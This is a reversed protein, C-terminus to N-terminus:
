GTAPHSTAQPPDTLVLMLQLPEVFYHINKRFEKLTDIVAVRGRDTPTLLTRRRDGGTPHIRAILGVDELATAAKSVRSLSVGVRDAVVSPQVLGEHAIVRLVRGNEPGGFRHKRANPAMGATFQQGSAALLAILDPVPIPQRSLPTAELLSLLATIDDAQRALAHVLTTEYQRIGARGKATLRVRRARANRPDHYRQVVGDSALKTVLRSLQAPDCDLIQLLAAQGLDPNALLAYLVQVGQNSAGAEGVAEAIAATNAVAIRDLLLMADLWRSRVAARQV